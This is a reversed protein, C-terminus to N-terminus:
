VKLFTFNILHQRVQSLLLGLAILKGKKNNEVFCTYVGGDSRKTINNIELQWRGLHPEIFHFFYM